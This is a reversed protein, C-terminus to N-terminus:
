CGGPSGPSTASSVTTASGTPTISTSGTRSPIVPHPSRRSGTARPTVPSPRRLRLLDDRADGIDTCVRTGIEVQCKKYEPSVQEQLDIRCAELFGEPAVGLEDSERDVLLYEEEIGITFAPREM